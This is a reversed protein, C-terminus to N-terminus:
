INGMFVVNSILNIIVAWLNLQIVDELDSRM